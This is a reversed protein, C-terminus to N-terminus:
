TLVLQPILMSYEKNMTGSRSHTHHYVMQEAMRRSSVYWVVREALAECVFVVKLVDSM